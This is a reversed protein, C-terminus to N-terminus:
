ALARLEDLYKKDVHDQDSLDLQGLHYDTLWFLRIPIAGEERQALHALFKTLMDAIDAAQLAPKFGSRGLTIISVRSRTGDHHIVEGDKLIERIPLRSAVTHLNLRGNRTERDHISLLLIAVAFFILALLVAVRWDFFASLVTIFLAVAFIGFAFFIKQPEPKVDLPKNLWYYFARLWGIPIRWERYFGLLFVYLAFPGVFAWGAWEHLSIWVVLLGVGSATLIELWTLGVTTRYNLFAWLRTLFINRPRSNM